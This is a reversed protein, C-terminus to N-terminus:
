HNRVRNSDSRKEITSMYSTRRQNCVKKKESEWEFYIHIDSVALCLRIIWGKDLGCRALMIVRICDYQTAWKHGSFSFWLFLVNLLIEIQHHVTWWAIVSSPMLQVVAQTCKLIPNLTKGCCQSRIIWHCDTGDNLRTYNISSRKDCPSSDPVPTSRDPRPRPTTTEMFDAHFLFTRLSTKQTHKHAYHLHGTFWQHDSFWEWSIILFTNLNHAFTDSLQQSRAVIQESCKQIRIWCVACCMIHTEIKTEWKIVYLILTIHGEEDKRCRWFPLLFNFEKKIIWKKRKSLIVFWFCFWCFIWYMWLNEDFGSKCVVLWMTLIYVSSSSLVTDSYTSIKFYTYKM